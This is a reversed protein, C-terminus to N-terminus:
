VLKELGTKPTGNVAAYLDEFKFPKGLFTGRYGADRYQQQREPEGSSPLFEIPEVQRQAYLENLKKFLTIGDMNPMSTDSLVLDFPKEGTTKYREEVLKFAELGDPVYTIKHGKDKLLEIYLDALDKEDDAILINKGTM